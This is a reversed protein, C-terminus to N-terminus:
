EGEEGVSTRSARGARVGPPYWLPPPPFSPLTPPAMVALGPKTGPLPQVERPQPRAQDHFILVVVNLFALVYCLSAQSHAPSMVCSKLLGRLNRAPATHIYFGQISSISFQQLMFMGGWLGTIMSLEAVVVVGTTAYINEHPVNAVDGGGGGWQLGTIPSLEAVVVLLGTTAYIKMLYM